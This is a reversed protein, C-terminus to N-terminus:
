KLVPGIIPGPVPYPDPYPYPYPYPLITVDGGIGGSVVDIEHDTMVDIQTEM